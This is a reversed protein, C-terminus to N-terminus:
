PAAGWASSTVSTATHEQEVAPHGAPGNLLWGEWCSIGQHIQRGSGDRQEEGINLAGGLQELAEPRAVAVHEGRITGQQAGDELRVVAVFGHLRRM